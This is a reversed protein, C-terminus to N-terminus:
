SFFILFNPQFQGQTEPFTCIFTSMCQVSLLYNCFNMHAKLKLTLVLVFIQFVYGNLSISSLLIYSSRLKNNDFATNCTICFFDLFIRVKCLNIFYVTFFFTFVIFSSGTSIKQVLRTSCLWLMQGFSQIWVPLSVHVLHLCIFM